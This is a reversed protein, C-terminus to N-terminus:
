QVREKKWAEVLRKGRKTRWAKVIHARARRAADESIAHGAVRGELPKLGIDHLRCLSRHRFTCGRAVPISVRKPATGLQRSIVDAKIKKTAAVLSEFWPAEKGAWGRTAPCLLYVVRKLDEKSCPLSPTRLSWPWGDVLPVYDDLVYADLMLRKGYGAAILAQAEAPTPRCPRKCMEKCVECRCVNEAFVATM